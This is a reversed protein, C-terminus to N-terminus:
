RWGLRAREGPLRTCRISRASARSGSHTGSAYGTFLHSAKTTWAIWPLHRPSGQLGGVWPLTEHEQWKALAKDKPPKSQAVAILMVGLCATAM